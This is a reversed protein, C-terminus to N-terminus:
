CSTRRSSVTERHQNAITHSSSRHRDAKSSGSGTSLQNPLCRTDSDCLCIWIHRPPVDGHASNRTEIRNEQTADIQAGSDPVARRHGDRARVDSRRESGAPRILRSSLFMGFALHVYNSDELVDDSLEPFVNRDIWKQIDFLYPIGHGFYRLYVLSIGISTFVGLLLHGVFIVEYSGSPMGFAGGTTESALEISRVATSSQTFFLSGSIQNYLSNAIFYFTGNTLFAYWVVILTGFLAVRALWLQSPRKNELLSSAIINLLYAVVLAFVVLPGIGYHSTIVGWFFTIVLFRRFRDPIDTDLIVLLLFATFSQPV